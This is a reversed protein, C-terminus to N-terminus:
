ANEDGNLKDKPKYDDFESIDAVPECVIHMGSIENMRKVAEQRCETAQMLILRCLDENKNVEDETLQAEKRISSCDIGLRALMEEYINKKYMYLGKLDNANHDTTFQTIIPNDAADKPFMDIDYTVLADNRTISNFLMRASKKNDFNTALHVPKKMANSYIECTRDLDAIIESYRSFEIFPVNLAKNDYILVSDESDVSYEIEYSYNYGNLALVTPEGYVNYELPAAPLVVWGLLPHNHFCLFQHVFLKEEIYRNSILLSDMDWKYRGTFLQRVHNLERRYELVNLNESHERAKSSTYRGYNLKLNIADYANSGNGHSYNM